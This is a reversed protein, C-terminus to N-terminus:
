EKEWDLDKLIADIKKTIAKLENSAARSQYQVEKQSFGLTTKQKDRIGTLYTSALNTFDAAEFAEVLSQYDTTTISSRFIGINEVNKIGEYSITKDQFIKVHYVKCKGFCSSKSLTMTPNKLQTNSTESATTPTNKKTKCAVLFLLLSLVLFSIITHKM